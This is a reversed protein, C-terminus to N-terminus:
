LMIEQGTNDLFIKITCIKSGNPFSPLALLFVVGPM